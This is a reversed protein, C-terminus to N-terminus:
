GEKADCYGGALMIVEVGRFSFFASSARPTSATTRIFRAGGRCLFRGATKSHRLLM